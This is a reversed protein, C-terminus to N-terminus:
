CKAITLDATFNMEANQLILQVDSAVLGNPGLIIQFKVADGVKIDSQMLDLDFFIDQGNDDEIFGKRFVPDIHTVIGKRM